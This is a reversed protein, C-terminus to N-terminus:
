ESGKLRSLAASLALEDGVNGPFVVYRLGPRVGGDGLEWISVQGFFLQGLVTARRVGLARVAMDHSTIGGKALMWDFPTDAAVAAVIKVMADAVVEASTLSAAGQAAHQPTRTTVLAADGGAMAERLEAAVRSTLAVREPPEVALLRRVDLMVTVFEHDREALELQRTTLGTHSGVVLLGRGGPVAVEGEGLPPPTRLGARAALFSPGTRYILRLGRAEALEVGYALIELDTDEVADATVYRVLGRLDLLRQAVREHGGCRLDELSLSAVPVGAGARERVWDALRSSRFGFAADRAYETEGVPTLREGWRVLHVDDVTVRGAHPFAPCVLIADTHVGAAELGAALAEPEAPFHGRLTSDSRSIVRVDVGLREAVAALRQAITMNIARAEAEPAARSNTLVAFTPSATAMAWELEREDWDTVLPLDRVTQTGTPDDDVVAIKVNNRALADRVRPRVDLGAAVPPLRALDAVSQPPSSTATL